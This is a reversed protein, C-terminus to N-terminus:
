EAKDEFYEGRSQICRQWRKKLTRFCEQFATNPISRLHALSNTKIAEISGFQSREANIQAKSVSLLWSTRSRSLVSATSPCNDRTQGLLWPFPVIFTLDSQWAPVDMSEGALCWTKKGSHRVFVTCLKWIISRISQGAKHYFSMTFLVRLILFYQWCWRSTDRHRKHCGNHNSSKRKSITGTCGHRMEQLPKWFTIVM